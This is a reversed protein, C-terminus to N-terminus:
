TFDEAALMPPRRMDVNIMISLLVFSSLLSSGGYSIFPLTLGTIPCMRMTMGVNIFVQTAFLTVGGVAILRGYPERTRDAINLGCLFLVAYLALVIM